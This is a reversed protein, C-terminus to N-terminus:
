PSIGHQDDEQEENDGSEAAQTLARRWAREVKRDFGAEVSKPFAVIARMGDVYGRLRDLERQDIPANSELIAGAINSVLRETVTKVHRELAVWAPTAALAVFKEHEIASEVFEKDEGAIQMIRDYM